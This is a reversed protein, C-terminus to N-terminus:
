RWGPGQKGVVGKGMDEAGNGGGGRGGHRMVRRRAKGVRGAEEGGGEARGWADTSAEGGGRARWGGTRRGGQERGGKVDSSPLRNAWIGRPFGKGGCPLGGGVAVRQAPKPEIAGIWPLTQGRLRGVIAQAMRHVCFPAEGGRTPGRRRWVHAKTGWSRWRSLVPSTEAGAAGAVAVGDRGRDGVMGGRVSRVQTHRGLGRM